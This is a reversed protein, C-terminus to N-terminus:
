KAKKVVKSPKKAPAKKAPAEVQSLRGQVEGLESGFGEISELVGGLKENLADIKATMVEIRAALEARQLECSGHDDEEPQEQKQEEIELRKMEREQKADLASKVLKIVAGSGALGVLAMAVTGGSVNGDAPILAKIEAIANDPVAVTAATTTTAGLMPPPTMTADALMIPDNPLSETKDMKHVKRPPPEFENAVVEGKANVPSIKTSFCVKRDSPLECDNLNKIMYTLSICGSSDEIEKPWECISM